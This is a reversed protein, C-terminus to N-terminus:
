PIGVEICNGELGRWGTKEPAAQAPQNRDAGDAATGGNSKLLNARVTPGRGGGSRSLLATQGILDIWNGTIEAKGSPVAQTIHDAPM